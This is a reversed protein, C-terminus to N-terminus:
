FLLCEYVFSKQRCLSPELSQIYVSELVQLHFDTRGNTIINFREDQYNQRCINNELLHLKIASKNKWDDNNANKSTKTPEIIINKNKLIKRPVHQVIRNRLRQTTRGVYWQDCHCVFKYVVNSKNHIPLRDKTSSPLVTRSSFITRVLVSGFCSSVAKITQREFRESIAGIYPLHLYVPCKKPGYVKDNSLSTIKSRIITNVLDQPYGNSALVSKIFDLEAQLRQQSCIKIARHTLTAVLACKRRKSCFSEWRTYLGSFTPKRYVSTIFNTNGAVKEVLVDLFSIKNDIEIESTFQISPHLANLRRLFEVSQMESAFIAFVDDVYRLYM